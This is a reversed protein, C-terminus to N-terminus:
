PDKYTFALMFGVHHQCSGELEDWTSFSSFEECWPPVACCLARSRNGRPRAATPALDIVDAGVGSHCLWELATKVPLSILCKVMSADSGTNRSLKSRLNLTAM